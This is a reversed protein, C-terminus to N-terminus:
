RLLLMLFTKTFLPPADVDLGGLGGAILVADSASMEERTEEVRQLYPRLFSPPLSSPSPLLSALSRLTHGLGQPRFDKLCVVTRALFSALFSPSPCLEWRAIGTILLSLDHANCRPLVREAADVVTSLFSPGPDRGLRALSLLAVSLDQPSFINLKHAAADGLARIFAPGPDHDLKALANILISLE